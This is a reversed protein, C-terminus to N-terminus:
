HEQTQPSCLVHLRGNIFFDRQNADETMKMPRWCTYKTISELAKKQGYKMYKPTQFHTGGFPTQTNYNDISVGTNEPKPLDYYRHDAM